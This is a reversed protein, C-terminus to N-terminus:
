EKPKDNKKTKALKSLLSLLTTRKDIKLIFGKYMLIKKKKQKNVFHLDM